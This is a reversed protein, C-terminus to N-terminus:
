QKARAGLRKLVVRLEAIKTKIFKREDDALKSERYMRLVTSLARRANKENRRRKEDSAGEAINALTLGADLDTSMFTLQNQRAQELEDNLKQKLLKQGATGFSTPSQPVKLVKDRNEEISGLQQESERIMSDRAHGQMWRDLEDEYAFVPSRPNGPHIQHVPLHREDHWRQVTRVGRGM